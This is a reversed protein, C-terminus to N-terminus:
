IDQLGFKCNCAMHVYPKPILSIEFRLSWVEVWGGMWGGVGVGVKMEGETKKQSTVAWSLHSITGLPEHHYIMEKDIRKKEILLYPRQWGRYKVQGLRQAWLSHEAAYLNSRKLLHCMETPNQKRSLVILKKQFRFIATLFHLPALHLDM